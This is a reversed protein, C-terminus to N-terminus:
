DIIAKYLTAANCHRSKQLIKQHRCETPHEHLSDIKVQKNDLDIVDSVFHSNILHNRPTLVILLMSHKITILEWGSTHYSAIAAM